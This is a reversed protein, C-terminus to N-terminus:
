VAFKLNWGRHDLLELSHLSRYCALHNMHLRLTVYAEILQSEFLAANLESAVRTVDVM